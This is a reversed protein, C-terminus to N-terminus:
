FGTVQITRTTSGIPPRSVEDAATPERKHGAFTVYGSPAPQVPAIATGNPLRNSRVYRNVYQIFGLEGAPSQIGYKSGSRPYGVM